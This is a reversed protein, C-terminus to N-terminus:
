WVSDDCRLRSTSGDWGNGCWQQGVDGNVHRGAPQWTVREVRCMLWRWSSIDLSVFAVRSCFPPQFPPFWFHRIVSIICSCIICFICSQMKPTQGILQGGNEFEWIEYNWQRNGSGCKETQMTLRTRRWDTLWDILWDTWRRRSANSWRWQHSIM